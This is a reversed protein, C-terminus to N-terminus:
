HDTQQTPASRREMDADAKEFSYTRRGKNALKFRGSGAVGAAIDEEEMHHDSFSLVGEDKLVRQLEQLVEDPRSLHHFTDYLLVADVIRDPLGTACDSHITRVNQIKKRRVLKQTAEVAAPNLDLAYIQGTPGVLEAIAPIFGGPGCGYDLVSSGPRIGVERLIDIRPRFIDRIRFGFSMIKFDLTSMPKEM